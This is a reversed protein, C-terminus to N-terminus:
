SAGRPIPRPRTLRAHLHRLTLGTLPDRWGPAIASAPATVFSRERFLPHPITLDPADFPGGSWLIIDCDLVRAGWRRGGKRGFGREIDKLLGLVAEPPLDAEVLVAGNAFRRRSPGLPLTAIMPAARVIRLGAREMADLAARLVDAPAGHRHHRMNSGLAILYREM